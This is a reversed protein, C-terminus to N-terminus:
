PQFGEKQGINRAIEAVENKDFTWAMLEAENQDAHGSVYASVQIQEEGEPGAELVRVDVGGIELWLGDPARYDGDPLTAGSPGFHPNLLSHDDVLEVWGQPDDEYDLLSVVTRHAGSQALITGEEIILNGDDYQPLEELVAGDTDFLVYEAGGHRAFNLVLQLDGPVASRNAMDEYTSILYGEDRKAISYGFDKGEDILERTTLSIHTTSVDATMMLKVPM